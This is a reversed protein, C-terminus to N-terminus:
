RGGVFNPFTINECAHTQGYLTPIDLPPYGAGGMKFNLDFKIIGVTFNQVHAGGQPGVKKLKM